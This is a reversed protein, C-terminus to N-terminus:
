IRPIVVYTTQLGEGEKVIQVAEIKPNVKLHAKIQFLVSKPVRYEQGDVEVFDYTFVEGEKTTGSKSKIEQNVSVIELDAINLTKIEKTENAKTKIDM